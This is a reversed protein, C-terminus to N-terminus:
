GSIQPNERKLNIQKKPMLKSSQKIKISQAAEVFLPCSQQLEAPPTPPLPSCIIRCGEDDGTLDVIVAAGDGATTVSSGEGDGTGGIDGDDEFTEILFFITLTRKEEGEGTM